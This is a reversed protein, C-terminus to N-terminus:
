CVGGDMGKTWVNLIHRFLVKRGTRMWSSIWFKLVSLRCSESGSTVRRKNQKAQIVEYWRKKQWSKEDKLEKWLSDLMKLGFVIKWKDRETKMSRCKWGQCIQTWSVLRSRWTHFGKSAAQGMLSCLYGQKDRRAGNAWKVTLLAPDRSTSRGEWGSEVEELSKIAKKSAHWSVSHVPSPLRIIRTAQINFFHTLHRPSPLILPSNSQLAHTFLSSPDNEASLGFLTQFM